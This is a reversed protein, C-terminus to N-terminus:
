EPPPPPPPKLPPPPPAYPKVGAVTLTPGPAPPLLKQLVVKGTVYLEADNFKTPAPASMILPPEPETVSREHAGGVDDGDTVGDAVDVKEDPPVAADVGVGVGDREFVADRVNEGVFVAVGDCDGLLVADTVTVGDLEGDLEGVGDAVGVGGIVSM